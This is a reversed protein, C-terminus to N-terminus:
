KKFTVVMVEPHCFMRVKLISTGLGRSVVMSTDGETYLGEYYKPFLGQNPGLFAPFFPLRLQGGHVHGSFVLDFNNEKYLRMKEPRHSLLVNFDTTDSVKLMSLTDKFGSDGFFDPDNIGFLTLKDGGKEIIVSENELTTVNYKNFMTVLDIGLESDNEHNGNVFFVPAIEILKQALVEMDDLNKTRRNILDGTMVIMDPEASKVAAILKYNDKGFNKNHLDSIQVIKYGDFGDPIRSSEYEIATTVLTNTQWIFFVALLAAACLIIYVKKMNM